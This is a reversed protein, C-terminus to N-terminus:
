LYQIVVKNQSDKESPIQTMVLAFPSDQIPSEDSQEQNEQPEKRTSQQKQQNYFFDFNLIDDELAKQLPTSIEDEIRLRKSQPSPVDTRNSIRKTSVPPELTPDKSEDNAVYNSPSPQM